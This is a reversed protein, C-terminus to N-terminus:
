VYKKIGMSSRLGSCKRELSRSKHHVKFPRSFTKRSVKMEVQEGTM